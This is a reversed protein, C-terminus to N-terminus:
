PLIGQLVVAVMSRVRAEGQGAPIVMDGLNSELSAVFHAIAMVTDAISEPALGARIRGLRQEAGCYATLLRMSIQPGRDRERLLALYRTHLAPDAHLSAWIPGARLIFRYNEIALLELTDAIEGLGVRTPLEFAVSAYPAVLAEIAALVLDEKTAFHKYLAGESVGAERAVARTSLKALGERQLLICTAAVLQDRM